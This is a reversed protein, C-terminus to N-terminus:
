GAILGAGRLEGLFSDLDAALVERPADYGAALETLIADRDRGEDILQWVTRASDRLSFFDGSELLMVVTEDDIATEVYRSPDKALVSM